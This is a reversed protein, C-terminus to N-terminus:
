YRHEDDEVQGPEDLDPPRVFLPDDQAYRDLYIACMKRLKKKTHQYKNVKIDRFMATYDNGHKMIMERCNILEPITLHPAREYKDKPVTLEVPNEAPKQRANPDVTIGIDIYNQRPTKTTNWAKAVAEDLYVPKKKGLTDVKKHRKPRSTQKRQRKRQWGMRKNKTKKQQCHFTPGSVQFIGSPRLLLFFDLFMFFFTHNSKKKKKKRNKM